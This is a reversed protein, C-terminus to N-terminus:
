YVAVIVPAIFYQIRLTYLYFFVFISAALLIVRIIINLRYNKFVM